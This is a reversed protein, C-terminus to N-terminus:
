IAKRRFVRKLSGGKQKLRVRDLHQQHRDSALRTRDFIETKSQIQKAKIEKEPVKQVAQAFEEGSVASITSVTKGVTKSEGSVNERKGRTSVGGKKAELVVLIHSSRRKIPAAMGRAKPTWRKLAPGENIILTKLSLDSRKLNFNHEANAIASNIVKLIPKAARRPSFSLIDIAKDLPLGRVTEAVLRVKKPSIRIYKAEARIEM